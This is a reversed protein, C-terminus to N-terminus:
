IKVKIYRCASPRESFKVNMQQQQKIVKSGGREFNSVVKEFPQGPKHFKKSSFIIESLHLQSLPPLYGFM